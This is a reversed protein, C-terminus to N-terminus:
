KKGAFHRLGEFQHRLHDNRARGAIQAALNPPNFNRGVTSGGPLWSDTGSFNSNHMSEWWM